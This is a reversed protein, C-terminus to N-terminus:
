ARIVMSSSTLLDGEFFLDIDYVPIGFFLDDFSFRLSYFGNILVDFVHAEPYFFFVAQKAVFFYQYCCFCDFLGIEANVGKQFAM